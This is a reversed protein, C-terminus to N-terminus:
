AGALGPTKGNARISDTLARVGRVCVACVPELPLLDVRIERLGAAELKKAVAEGASRSDADTAGKRRSQVTIALTGGPRLRDRLARLLAEPTDAFQLSNVAYIADFPGPLPGPEVLELYSAHVLEVRGARIAGANRRRAQRLVTPSHDLGTVRGERLRAAATELAIGPGCGLELVRDTPAVELLEVTWRNRAVNSARHSMVFGAVAGLIGTPRHFQALLRRRM